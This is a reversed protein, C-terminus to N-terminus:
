ESREKTHILSGRLQRHAYHLRSRVTGERIRLVYSIERISLGHIYRLLVTLRHKEPLHNVAEWLQTDMESQIFSEEPLSAAPQGLGVVQAVRALKLQLRRKRLQGRCINVCITYLWNKFQTGVEYQKIKLVATMITEQAADQADDENLLISHALRILPDFYLNTVWATLEEFPVDEKQLFNDLDSIAQSMIYNTM